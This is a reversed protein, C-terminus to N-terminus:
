LHLFLNDTRLRSMTEANAAWEELENSVPVALEDKGSTIVSQKFDEPM